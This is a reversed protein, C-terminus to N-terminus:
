TECKWGMCTYVAAMEAGIHKVSVGCSYLPGMM